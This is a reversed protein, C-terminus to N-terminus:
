TYVSCSSPPNPASLASGCTLCEIVPPVLFSGFNLNGLAGEFESAYDVVDGFEELFSIIEEILEVKLQRQPCLSKVISCIVNCRTKKHRDFVKPVYKISLMTWMVVDFGFM